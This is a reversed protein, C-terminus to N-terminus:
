RRTIPGHSDYIRRWRQYTHDDIDATSTHWLAIVIAAPGFPLVLTRRYYEDYSMWPLFSRRFGHFPGDWRLHVWVRGPIIDRTM